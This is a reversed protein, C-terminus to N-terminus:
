FFLRLTLGFANVHETSSHSDNQRCYYTDLVSKKFVHWDAGVYYRQKNWEETKSDYFFEAMVYPTVMRSRLSIDGEVRSRNRYRWSSEGNVDRFEFRNRNIFAFREMPARGTGEVLVRDEQYGDAGNRVDWSYRYGARAFFLHQKVVDPHNRLWPRAFPKGYLDIHAGVTAERLDVEANRTESAMFMLRTRENLKVYADVEPWFEDETTDQARAPTACMLVILAAPVFGKPMRPMTGYFGVGRARM